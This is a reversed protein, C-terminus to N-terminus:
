KKKERDLFHYDDGTALFKKYDSEVTEIFKKTSKKEQLEYLLAILLCTLGLIIFVTTLMETM